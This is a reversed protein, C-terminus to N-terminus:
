DLKYDQKCYSLAMTFTYKANTFCSKMSFKWAETNLPITEIYIIYEKCFHGNLNDLSIFAQQYM